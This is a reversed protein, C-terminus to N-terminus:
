RQIQHPAADDKAGPGVGARAVLDSASERAQASNLMRANAVEATGSLERTGRVRGSDAIQTGPLELFAYEQFQFVYADFHEAIVGEHLGFLSLKYSHSPRDLAAGYETQGEIAQMKRWKDLDHGFYKLVRDAIRATSRGSDVSAVNLLKNQPFTSLFDVANETGSGFIGCVKEGLNGLQTESPSRGTLVSQHVALSSCLSGLADALNRHCWLLGMDSQSNIPGAESLASEGSGDRDAITSLDNRGFSKFLSDLHLIAFPSHICFPQYTIRAKHGDRQEQLMNDIPNTERVVADDYMGLGKYFQFLQLLRREHAYVGDQNQGVCELLHDDLGHLLGWAISYPTQLQLGVDDDPQSPGMLDRVVRFEPNNYQFYRMEKKYAAARAEPSMTSPFLTDKMTPTMLVGSRGLVHHNVANGARPLGILFIPDLIQERSIEAGDHKFIEEVGLRESLYHVIKRHLLWRGYNSLNDKNAASKCLKAWWEFDPVDVAKDSLGAKEIALSAVKNPNFDDDTPRSHVRNKMFGFLTPAIAVPDVYRQRRQPNFLWGSSGVGLRATSTKMM